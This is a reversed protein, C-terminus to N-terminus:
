SINKNIAFFIKKNIRYKKSADNGGCGANLLRGERLHEPHPSECHLAFEPLILM